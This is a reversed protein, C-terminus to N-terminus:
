RKVYHLISKTGGNELHIVQIKRLYKDTKTVTLPLSKGNGIFVNKQLLKRRQARNPFQSVYPFENDKSFKIPTNTLKSM